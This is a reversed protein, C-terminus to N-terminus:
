FLRKLIVWFGYLSNYVTEGIKKFVPQQSAGYVSATQSLDPFADASISLSPSLPLHRPVRPSVTPSQASADAIIIVPLTTTAPATTAVALITAVSVDLVPSISSSVSVPVIFPVYASYAAGGSARVVPAPPAYKVTEGAIPTLTIIETGDGKEDVVLPSATAISETITLSATTSAVLPIDALTALAGAVGAVSEQIDLSFMSGQGGGSTQGHLTLEYRGGPSAPAPVILYQVEGFEGYTSDPIEETISDDEAIGTKKGSPDTVEMAIRIPAEESESSDPPPSARSSRLFFILKKNDTMSAPQSTSIYAPLSGAVNTIINKIFEELSPIEFLDKHDRKIKTEKYFSSLDIWYRKVSTSSAILLASPVPVTGDGDEIFLPRYKRQPKFLSFISSPATYFDIGAVTDAGWGAVQSVEIDAPPTWPDLIAHTSNAYDILTQNLVEASGTDSAKPKKRGGEKALLFDDLEISSTITSGYAAIEKVYGDGAFRAVPHDTDSAISLLYEESPLLHYAMPSNQALARAAANSLIPFGYKYIGADYGMLVAGLSEPAGSQPVGVMVIKDVLSKSAESGLRNLLAKAVLGGNSHAVITVKGSKSSTALARLTQEIYPTSTAEEYYIRGEHESGKNLLDDLSLRWDYAVPKWDNVTGDVKLGNMENLFSKYINSGRVTDIVDDGKTYIDSCVSAGSLDLSLDRAKGDGIGRLVGWLSEYPEWLKEEATKGCGTGEYLRSGEIGPLFLVNSIRPKPPDKWGDQTTWSLADQGGIFVYPADCFGNSDADDCGEVSEDFTDRYNGGDPESLNFTDAAGGYDVMKAGNSFFNNHYVQNGSTPTFIALGEKVSMQIVNDRLINDHSGFLLIGQYTDSVINSIFSNRDSSFLAIGQHRGTGARTNLVITNDQFVNDHSGYLVFGQHRDASSTLLSVTNGSVTNMHSRSLVVGQNDDNAFANNEIHNSNSNNMNVGYSFNEIRLNKITVGSRMDLYVGSGTDSGKTLHGGGDLTINDGDIEVTEALDTTLTCTLTASDWTGISACDGGTADNNIFKTSKKPQIFVFHPKSIDQTYTYEGNGDSIFADLNHYNDEYKYYATDPMFGAITMLTSTASISMPELRMTVVNPISELRVRIPETSNLSVNLYDSDVIQFHSDEGAAVGTIGEIQSFLASAGAGYPIFFLAVAIIGARM